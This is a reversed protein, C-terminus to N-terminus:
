QRIIQWGSYLAYRCVPVSMPLHSQSFGYKLLGLFKRKTESGERVETIYFSEVLNKQDKSFHASGLETAVWTGETGWSQAAAGEAHFWYQPQAIGWSTAGSVVALHRASWVSKRGEEGTKNKNAQKNWIQVQLSNNRLLFSLPMWELGNVSQSSNIGTRHTELLGM